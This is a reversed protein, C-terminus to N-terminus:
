SDNIYIYIYISLSLSFLISFQGLRRRGDMDRYHLILSGRLQYQSTDCAGNSWSSEWYLHNYTHITFDMKTEKKRRQTASGHRTRNQCFKTTSLDRKLFLRLTPPSVFTLWRSKPSDEHNLRWLTPSRRLLIRTRVTTKSNPESTVLVRPFPM